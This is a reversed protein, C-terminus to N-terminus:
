RWTVEEDEDEDCFRSPKTMKQLLMIMAMALPKDCKRQSDEFKLSAEAMKSESYRSRINEGDVHYDHVMILPLYRNVKCLLLSNEVLIVFRHFTIDDIPGSNCNACNM